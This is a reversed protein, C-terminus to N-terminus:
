KAAERIVFRVPIPQATARQLSVIASELNTTQTQLENLRPHAKLDDSLGRQAQTLEDRMDTFRKVAHGQADWPGGPQWPDASASAINVGRSLDNAAWTGLARGGASIEYRGAPLNKVTLMYRNLEDSIPVFMGQLMWLPQLNLPLHRDLRVFSLEGAASKIESIECEESGIVKSAKADITASSVDAPAGLGKLIAYAMAMQGLDNLHIGDQVHMKTHKAKDPEKANAALVRRQVQRMQRQVDIAGGGKAKALAMGEDCMEQLFGKEAHDPDEATIAASCIYVRVGREKCRDVIEGIANLYEKKHAEDAHLGWGIDNIGYAVTLLTAGQGFVAPDLRPLSGKATEGGHGANIFRVKREPFRLLTYNEIIKGYTRAATISDGLFVVTDGDRIAFDASTSFGALSLLLALLNTKNTM